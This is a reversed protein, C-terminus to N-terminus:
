RCQVSLAPDFSHREAAPLLDGDNRGDAHEFHGNVRAAGVGFACGAFGFGKLVPGSDVDMYWERGPVDRAFERFGQATWASQWFHEVYADYWKRALDPWVAPAELCVYSNGCGRSEDRASSAGSDGYYPVLGRSDLMRGQFARAARAAFVSHDTGLVSDANRIMAIAALVDGPYCENPYDNLLGNPSKDLEASLSEVQQRLLGIFEASGTLRSHSTLAAIVLMRYFVNETKLYKDGWHIKVWNAQKPDIVLRAAADIAGAAYVKPAIPDLKQDKQWESQLSETSWLYFVAGFLPWETGSINSTSLETARNSALRQRAWNEFKPTLSRHMKWAFTPIARTKIGPDNIEFLVTATPVFCIFLALLCLSIANFYRYFAM